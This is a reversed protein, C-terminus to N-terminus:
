RGAATRLLIPSRRPLRAASNAGAHFEQSPSRAPSHPEQRLKQASSTVRRVDHAGSVVLLPKPATRQFLPPQACPNSERTM